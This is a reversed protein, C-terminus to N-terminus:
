VYAYHDPLIIHLSRVSNFTSYKEGRSFHFINGEVGRSTHNWSNFHQM